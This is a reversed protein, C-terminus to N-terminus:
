RFSREWELERFVEVEEGDKCAFLGDLSDQVSCAGSAVAVSQACTGEASGEEGLGGSAAEGGPSNSSSRTGEMAVAREEPIPGMEDFSPMDEHRWKAGLCYLPTVGVPLQTDWVTGFLLSMMQNFLESRLRENRLRMEDHRGSYNWMAKEHAQLPALRRRLFEAVVMQGTLGADRLVRVKEVLPRLLDRPLAQAGWGQRVTAPEYPKSLEEHCQGADMWVWYERFRGSARPGGLSLFDSERSKVAVFGVCGSCQDAAMLRLEFLHRLYAVSPRVGLFAECGFAFTSLTVIAEPRLHLLKIQYHSLVAFLFPSFPAVLGATIFHEPVPCASRPLVDRKAEGSWLPTPGWEKHASGAIAAVRKMGEKTVTKPAQLAPAASRPLVRPAM